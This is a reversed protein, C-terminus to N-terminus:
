PKGGGLPAAHQAIRRGAAITRLVRAPALRRPPSAEAVLVPGRFVSPTTLSRVGGLAPPSGGNRISSTASGASPRHTPRAALAAVVCVVVPATASLSLWRWAQSLRGASRGRSDTSVPPPASPTERDTVDFFTDEDYVEYVSRPRRRLLM